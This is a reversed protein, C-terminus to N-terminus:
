LDQNYIDRRVDGDTETITTTSSVNPGPVPDQGETAVVDIRAVRGANTVDSSNEDLLHGSTLVGNILEDELQTNLGDETDVLIPPLDLDDLLRNHIDVVVEQIVGHSKSVGYFNVKMSFGLTWVIARRTLFDQEYNDQENFSTLTVPVQDAYGLEPLVMLRFTLDPTFYPLIQEVIDFGDQQSKVLISLDVNITWPVGVWLRALRKSQTDPFHLQNLSNLKRAGDYSFGTVEYAMRPVTIAIGKQLGPDQQLRALWREKPGYQIPVQLRQVENGLGDNRRIEINDFLSGFAVLYRRLQGHSFYQGFM